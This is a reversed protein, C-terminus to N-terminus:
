IFSSLEKVATFLINEVEKKTRVTGGKLPVEQVNGTHSLAVIWAIPDSNPYTKQWYTPWERTDTMSALQALDYYDKYEDRGCVAILKMVVLDRAGALRFGDVDQIKDICLAMRSLFSVKVGDIECWLTDIDEYTFTTLASM